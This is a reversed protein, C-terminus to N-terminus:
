NVSTIDLDHEVEGSLSMYEASIELTRMQLVRPSIIILLLILIVM